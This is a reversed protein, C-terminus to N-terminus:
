PTPPIGQEQAGDLGGAKLSAIRLDNGVAAWDSGIASMDSGEGFPWLGLSVFPAAMTSGFISGISAIGSRFALANAARLLALKRQNMEESM